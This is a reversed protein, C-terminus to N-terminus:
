FLFNLYIFVNMTGSYVKNLQAYTTQMTEQDFQGYDTWRPDEFKAYNERFKPDDWINENIDLYRDRDARFYLIINCQFSLKGDLLLKHFGKINM